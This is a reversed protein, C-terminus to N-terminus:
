PSELGGAHAEAEDLSEYGYAKVMHLYLEETMNQNKQKKERIDEYLLNLTRSSYTELEGQLYTQFSTQWASDEKASLPRARAMLHPYKDSMAKQWALQEKVILEINPDPNQCPILDDMRAYKETM